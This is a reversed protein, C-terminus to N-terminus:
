KLTLLYKLKNVARVMDARINELDCAEMGDFEVPLDNALYAETEALFAQVADKSYNALKLDFGGPASLRTNRRGQLAEIYQDTLGQLAEYTEGFAMHEAFGRTQWHFVQLQQQIKVLPAIVPKM